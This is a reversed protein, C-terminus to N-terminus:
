RRRHLKRGGPIAFPLAQEAALRQCVALIATEGACGVGLRSRGEQAAVAVLGRLRLALTQPPKRGVGFRLLRLARVHRRQRTVRRYLAQAAENTM